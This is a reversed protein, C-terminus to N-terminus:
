IVELRRLRRLEEREEDTICGSQERGVLLAVDDCTQAGCARGLEILDHEKPESNGAAFHNASM